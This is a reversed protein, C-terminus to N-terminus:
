HGILFGIKYVVYELSMEMSSLGEGSRSATPRLAFGRQSIM